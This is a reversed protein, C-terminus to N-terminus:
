SLIFWFILTLLGASLLKSCRLLSHPKRTSILEQESLVRPSLSEALWEEGHGGPLLTGAGGVAKLWIQQEEELMGQSWLRLM